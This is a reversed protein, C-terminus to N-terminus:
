PGKIAWVKSWWADMKMGKDDPKAMKLDLSCIFNQHMAADVLSGDDDSDNGDLLDVPLGGGGGGPPHGIEGGRQSIILTELRKFGEAQADGM